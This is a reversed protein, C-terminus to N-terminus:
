DRFPSIEVSMKNQLVETVWWLAVIPEANYEGEEGDAGDYSPDYGCYIQEPLPSLTHSIICIPPALNPFQCILM